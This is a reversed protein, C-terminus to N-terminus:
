MKLKRKNQPGLARKPRAGDRRKWYAGYKLEIAKLFFDHEKPNRAMRWGDDTM